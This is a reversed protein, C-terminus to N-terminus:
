RRRMRALFYLLLAALGGAVVLAPATSFADSSSGPEATGDEDPRESYTRDAGPAPPADPEAPALLAAAAPLAFVPQLGESTTLLTGDPEWAIAEGQPEPPLRIPAPPRQLAAAVDGDPAHFLYAETYTRLAIMTGDPSVSGGTVLRTGIGKIPGDPSDTSPLAVSGVREWPVTADAALPAAPRYVFAVGFPEKTVVHPTGERDLLIAEADHPGDPYSLRYLTSDGNETLRHLAVTSRERRNDGTDALWVAGDPALALDEVDYPDAESTWVDRVSCDGRDLLTVRISSGGDDVAYWYRGDSALGSLETLDPDSIRCRQEPVAVGQAAAVGTTVSM